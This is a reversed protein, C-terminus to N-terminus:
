RSRPMSGTPLPRPSTVAAPQDPAADVVTLEKRASLVGPGDGEFTGSTPAVDAYDRGVAVTLYGSTARRDHTPDFAVALAGGSPSSADAVVVEVWAHSGGEGVLHGSVYRAPLGAARCVALMVHAQDQCVGRGLAVADAATTRVSTVGYEYRLARHAWSCAREAVALGGGDSGALQRAADALVEDAATLRTAALLRPDGLAGAPVPTTGAPGVGRVVAWVDFGIEEPVEPAGVDVVHNGFGDERVTVVASTGSVTVRHDVRRQGGHESRPVVLLRNRLRRVPSGYTYTFRQRLLYTAEGAM